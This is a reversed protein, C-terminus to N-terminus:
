QKRVEAYVEVEQLVFVRLKQKDYYVKEMFEQVEHYDDMYVKLYEIDAKTVWSSEKIYVREARSPCIM